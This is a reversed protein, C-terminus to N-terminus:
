FLQQGAPLGLVQRLHAAAASTAPAAIAIEKSVALFSPDSTELGSIRRFDTAMTRLHSILSEAAPRDQIPFHLQALSTASTDMGRALPASSSGFTTCKTGSTTQSGSGGSEIPCRVGVNGGQTADLNSLIKSVQKALTPPRTTPSGTSSSSCAGLLLSATAIGMVWRAKM